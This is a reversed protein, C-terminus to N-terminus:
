NSISMKHLLEAAKIKKNSDIKEQETEQRKEEISLTM